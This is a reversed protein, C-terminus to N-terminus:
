EVVLSEGTKVISVSAVKDKVKYKYEISASYDKVVYPADNFISEDVDIWCQFTHYNSKGFFREDKIYYDFLEQNVSDDLVYINYGRETGAEIFPCGLTPAENIDSLKVEEPLMLEMYQLEKIDGQWENTLTIGITNYTDTGSVIIPQEENGEGGVGIAISIPEGNYTVRLDSQSIDLNYYDFFDEGSLQDSTESTIYYVPLKADLTKFDFAFAGYVNYAGDLNATEEGPIKCQVNTNKNLEIEGSPIIEGEIKLETSKGEDKLLQCYFEAPYSDDKDVGVFDFDYRFSIDQGQPVVDGLISTFSKFKVGMETKSDNIKYSFYDGARAGYISQLLNKAPDITWSKFQAGVNAITAQGSASSAYGYFFIGGILLIFIMATWIFPRKNSSDGPTNSGVEGRRGFSVDKM